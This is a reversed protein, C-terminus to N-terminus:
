VPPPLTGNTKYVENNYGCDIVPEGIIADSMNINQLLKARKVRKKEQERNEKDSIMIIINIIFTGLKQELKSCKNDSWMWVIGGHINSVNKVM